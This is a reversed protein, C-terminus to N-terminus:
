GVWGGLLDGGFWAVWKLDLLWWTFGFLMICDFLRGVVFHEWVM